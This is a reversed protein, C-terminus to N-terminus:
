WSPELRGLYLFFIPFTVGARGGVGVGASGGRRVGQASGRSFCLTEALASLGSFSQTSDAAKKPIICQLNQHSVDKSICLLSRVEELVQM